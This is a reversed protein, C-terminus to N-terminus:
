GRASSAQRALAAEFSAIMEACSGASADRESLIPASAPWDIGLDPDNWRCGLEDSMNWYHSLGYIITSPEPFYFGHAVGVPITVAVPAAAHMDIIASLGGTPSTRRIDKLGLLMRGSAVTLYDAHEFHVHVGRLVNAASHVLNWQRPEIGTAWSSRFLEMLSGRDDAHSTIPTTIVGAPLQASPRPM